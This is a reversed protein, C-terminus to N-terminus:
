LCLKEFERTFEEGNLRYVNGDLVEEFRLPFTAFLEIVDEGINNGKAALKPVQQLVQWTQMYRWFVVNIDAGPSCVDRVLNMGIAATKGNVTRRLNMVAKLDAPDVAPVVKGLEPTIM